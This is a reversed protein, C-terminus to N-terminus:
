NALIVQRALESSQGNADMLRKLAGSVRSFIRFGSSNSIPLAWDSGFLTSM